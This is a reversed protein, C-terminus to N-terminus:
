RCIGSDLPQLQFWLQQGRRRLPRQLCFTRLRPLATQHRVGLRRSSNGLKASAAKCWVMQIHDWYHILRSTAQRRGLWVLAGVIMMTTLHELGLLRAFVAKSIMSACTTLSPVPTRAAKYSASPQMAIRQVPTAQPHSRSQLQRQQVPLLSVMFAAQSARQQTAIQVVHSSARLCNSDKASTASKLCMSPFPRLISPSSPLANQPYARTCHPPKLPLSTTSPSFPLL